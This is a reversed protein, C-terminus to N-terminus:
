AAKAEIFRCEARTMGLIVEDDDPLGCRKVGELIFGLHKSFDLAHTNKAAVCGTVRLCGLQKFPYAFAAQLFRNTLWNADQKAAIHMCIDIGTFHNYICAAIMEGGHELGVAEFKGEIFQDANVGYRERMFEACREKDFIIV